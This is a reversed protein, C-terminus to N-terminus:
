RPGDNSRDARMRGITCFLSIKITFIAVLNPCRFLPFLRVSHLLAIAYHFSLKVLCIWLWVVHFSASFNIVSFTIRYIMTRKCLKFCGCVRAYCLLMKRDNFRFTQSKTTSRMHRVEQHRLCMFLHVAIIIMLM